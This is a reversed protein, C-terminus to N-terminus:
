VLGASMWSPQSDIGWVTSVQNQQIRAARAGAGPKRAGGCDPVLSAAPWGFPKAKVGALVPGCRARPLQARTM